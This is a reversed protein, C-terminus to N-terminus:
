FWECNNLKPNEKKIYAEYRKNYDERNFNKDIYFSTVLYSDKSGLKQLIVIFDRKYAWLYLRIKGSAELHYFMKIEDSDYNLIIPKIWRIRSARKKDFERKKTKTNKRSIIHWFIEEKGDIKKHSQPNIYIKNALYCRNDIFDSKFINYLFDYIEERKCCVEFDIILGFM